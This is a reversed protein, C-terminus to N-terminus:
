LRAILLYLTDGEVVAFMADIESGNCFGEEGLDANGFQTQVQQLVRAEGYAADAFGDMAIDQASLGAVLALPAVVGVLNWIKM